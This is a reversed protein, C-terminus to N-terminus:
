SGNAGQALVVSRRGEMAFSALLNITAQLYVNDTRRNQRARIQLVETALKRVTKFERQALLITM